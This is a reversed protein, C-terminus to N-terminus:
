TDWPPAKQSTGYRDAQYHSDVYNCFQAGSKADDGDTTDRVNGNRQLM